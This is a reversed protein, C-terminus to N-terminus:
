LGPRPQYGPNLETPIPAAIDQRWRDLKAYLSAAVTPLAEVLNTTESPDEILDYLERRGDEYFELLKFRGERVASVPTTRWPNAARAGAQLYAPFHWFLARQSPPGQSPPRQPEALIPGLDVGDLIPPLTNVGALSAFTPLLDAGMTLERCTAPVFRGPWNVLFPVRIGGEYLMGKAGRLPEMSTVGGHGGNDSVFVIMTENSVGARELAARIKGVSEDVSLVMAAYKARIGIRGRGDARSELISRYRETSEPKAQIPTHVSYYSVYAFFPEESRSSNEIFAIAEDTLRDTLYEGDPGDTLAPNKYPSFYSKPHGATFGGVNLHFGQDLPDSGLHWKGFHACRYGVGALLEPITVAESRLRERNQVPVLKRNKSKGRASSSVTYIGHRPGYQGTMLCARSPACNPGNAYANTFRIGGASLADISPTEHYPHGYCGIDNYGLDDVVFLVINPRPAPRDTTAGRRPDGTAGCGCLIMSLVLAIASRVHISM